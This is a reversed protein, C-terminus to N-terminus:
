ETVTAILFQYTVSEKYHMHFPTSAKAGGNMETLDHQYDYSTTLRLAPVQFKM